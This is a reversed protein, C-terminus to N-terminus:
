SPFFLPERGKLFEGIRRAADPQLDTFQVGLGPMREPALDNAERIWRVVGRVPMVPQGPLTLSLEVSTGAPLEALTAIFVGGESLNTSFGTFFNSESRLDIATEMAVRDRTVRDRERKTAERLAPHLPPATGPARSIQTDGLDPLPTFDSADTAEGEDAGRADEDAAAATAAAAEAADRRQAEEAERQAALRAEAEAVRRELAQALELARTVAQEHAGLAAELEAGGARREALAAERAERIRALAAESPPTPAAGELEERATRAEPLESDSWRSGLLAWREECERQRQKARALRAVLAEERADAEFEARQLPSAPTPPPVPAPRTM